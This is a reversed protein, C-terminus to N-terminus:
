PRGEIEQIAEVPTQAGFAVRLLGPLYNDMMQVAPYIAHRILNGTLPEGEFDLSSKFRVEGDAYDMEFNGIRLNYNARNIFEAVAPRVESPVRVTTIAYFIFQELDARISAFCRLEANKGHYYMRYAYKDEVKQPYWNDEELFQGLAAFAQLANPRERKADSESGQSQGDPSKDNM